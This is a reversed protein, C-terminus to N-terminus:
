AHKGGALFQQYTDLDEPETTGATFPRLAERNEVYFLKSCRDPPLNMPKRFNLWMSHAPSLPELTLCDFYAAYRRWEGLRDATACYLPAINLELKALEAHLRECFATHDSFTRFRLGPLSRILDDKLPEAVFETGVEYRTRQIGIRNLVSLVSELSETQMGLRAGMWKKTRLESRSMFGEVEYRSDHDAPCPTRRPLSATYPDFAAQAPGSLPLILGYYDRLYETPVCPGTQLMEFRQLHELTM